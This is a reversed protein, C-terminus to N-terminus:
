LVNDGLSNNNTTNEKNQGDEEESDDDDSTKRQKKENRKKKGKEEYYKINGKNKSIRLKMDRLIWDMPPISVIVDGGNGSDKYILFSKGYFLTLHVFTAIEELIQKDNKDSCINTGDETTVKKMICEVFGRIGVCWEGRILERKATQKKASDSINEDSYYSKRKCSPIKKFFIFEFFDKLRSLQGVTSCVLNENM